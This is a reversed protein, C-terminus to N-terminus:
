GSDESLGAARHTDSAHKQGEGQDANDSSGDVWAASITSKGHVGAVQGVVSPAVKASGHQGRHQLPAACANANHDQQPRPQATAGSIEVLGQMGRHSSVYSAEVLVRGNRIDISGSAEMCVFQRTERWAISGVKGGSPIYIKGHLLATGDDRASSGSLSGDPSIDFSCKAPKENGEVRYMGSLVLQGLRPGNFAPMRERCAQKDKLQSVEGSIWYELKEHIKRRTMYFMACCAIIVLVGVLVLLWFLDSDQEETCEIYAEGLFETCDYGDTETVGDVCITSECDICPFCYDEVYDNGILNICAAEIGEESQMACHVGDTGEEQHYTGYRRRSGSRLVLFNMYAVAGM